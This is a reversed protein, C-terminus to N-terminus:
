VKSKQNGIDWAYHQEYADFFDYPNKSRRPAKMGETYEPSLYMACARGKCLVRFDYKSSM